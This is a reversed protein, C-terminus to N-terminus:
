HLYEHDKNLTVGVVALWYGFMMNCPGHEDADVRWAVALAEVDSVAAACSCRRPIVGGERGRTLM